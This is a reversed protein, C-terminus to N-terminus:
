DLLDGAGKFSETYIDSIERVGEANVESKDYVGCIPFGANKAAAAAYFADEFVWTEAKETKLFAHARDFIDSRDKGCGVESCCFIGDFYKLVGNRELANEALQRETATAVCMKVGKEKIRALFEAVGEKLLAKSNYFDTLIKNFDAMIESIGDAIDYEERLYEAAEGLSMTQLTDLIDSKPTIGKSKLYDISLTDWIYMSDLLTGDLDFIAGKIKM